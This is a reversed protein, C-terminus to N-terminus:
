REISYSNEWLIHTSVVSSVKENSNCKKVHANRSYHFVVAEEKIIKYCILLYDTTMRLFVGGRYAEERESHFMNGKTGCFAFQGLLRKNMKKVNLKAHISKKANNSSVLSKQVWGHKKFRRATTTWIEPCSQLIQIFRKFAKRHFINAYLSDLPTDFEKSRETKCSGASNISAWDHFNPKAECFAWQGVLSRHRIKLVIDWSRSDLWM